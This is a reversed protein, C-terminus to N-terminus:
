APPFFSMRQVIYGCSEYLTIIPHLLPIPCSSPRGGLGLETGSNPRPPRGSFTGTRSLNACLVPVRTPVVIVISQGSIEPGIRPALRFHRAPVNEPRVIVLARLLYHTGCTLKPPQHSNTSFYVYLIGCRHLHGIRTFLHWYKYRALRHYLRLMNLPFRKLDGM